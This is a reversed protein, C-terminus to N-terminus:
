SVFNNRKLEKRMKLGTKGIVRSLSFKKHLIGLRQKCNVYCNIKFIESELTLNRKRKKRKRRSLLYIPLLM